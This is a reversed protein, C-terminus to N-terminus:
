LEGPRIMIGIAHTSFLVAGVVVLATIKRKTESMIIRGKMMIQLLSLTCVLCIIVQDIIYINDLIKACNNKQKKHNKHKEIINKLNPSPLSMSNSSTM